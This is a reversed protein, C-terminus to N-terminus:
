NTTCMHILSTVLKLCVQPLRCFKYPSPTVYVVDADDALSFFRYLTFHFRMEIAKLITKFGFYLKPLYHYCFFLRMPKIVEFLGSFISFPSDCMWRDCYPDDWIKIQPTGARLVVTLTRKSLHVNKLNKIFAKVWECIAVRVMGPWQEPIMRTIELMVVYVGPLCGALDKACWCIWSLFILGACNETGSYLSSFHDTGSRSTRHLWQSGRILVPMRRTRFERIYETAVRFSCLAKWSHNLTMKWGHVRPPFIFKGRIHWHVLSWAPHRGLTYVTIGSVVGIIGSRHDPIIRPSGHIHLLGKVRQESQVSDLSHLAALMPHPNPTLFALATRQWGIFDRLDWFTGFFSILPPPPPPPPVGVSKKKSRLIKAEIKCACLLPVRRVDCVESLGFFFFQAHSILMDAHSRSFTTIHM